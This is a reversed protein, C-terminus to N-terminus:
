RRRRRVRVKFTRIVLLRVARRSRAAAAHLFKVGFWRSLQRTGLFFHQDHFVFYFRLAELVLAALQVPVGSLLLGAAALGPLNL